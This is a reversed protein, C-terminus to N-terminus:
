ATIRIIIVSVLFVVSVLILALSLSLSLARLSLLGKLTKVSRTNMAM